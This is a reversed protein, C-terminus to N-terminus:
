TEVDLRSGHMGESNTIGDQGDVMYSRPIVHIVRRDSPIKASQANALVRKLDNRTVMLDARRIAVMGRSNVSGVHRGTIGVYASRIKVGSAREASRVSERVAAKTKSIDVVMGKHLGQAPVVGMGMVQICENEDLEALVTCVKWTGVDIAAITSRKAM